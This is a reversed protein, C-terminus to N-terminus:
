QIENMAYALALHCKLARQLSPFDPSNPDSHKALDKLLLGYRTIRQIPAIMYDSLGMRHTEKKRLSDQVLQRYVISRDAKVICRQQKSFNAAYSIYVDFHDELDCFVKGLCGQTEGSETTCIAENLRNVLTSSLQILEPIFAFITSIDRINVLPRPYTTAALVLPDMFMQKIISLHELYTTETTILENLIFHLLHPSQGHPSMKSDSLYLNLTNRWIDIGEREKLSLMRKKEPPTSSRKFRFSLSRPQQQQQQQPTILLSPASDSYYLSARDSQLVRVRDNRHFLNSELVSVSRRAPNKSQLKKASNKRVIAPTDSQIISLSPRCPEFSVPVNDSFLSDITASAWQKTEYSTDEVPFHPPM